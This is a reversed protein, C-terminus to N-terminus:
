GQSLAGLAPLKGAPVPFIRISRANFAGEAM